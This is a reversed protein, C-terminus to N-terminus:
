WSDGALMSAMPAFQSTEPPELHGVTFFEDTVPFAVFEGAVLGLLSLRKKPFQPFYLFLFPSFCM